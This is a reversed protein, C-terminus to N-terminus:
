FWKLVPDANVDVVGGGMNALLLYRVCCSVTGDYPHSKTKFETFRM